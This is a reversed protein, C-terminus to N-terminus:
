QQVANVAGAIDLLAMTIASQRAKNYSLTLDDILEEAADTANRMAVMRASHESAIAEYLAQLIQVETFSYLVQSLVTFADPEFIYDPAMNTPVDALPVIPLLQRVVPEQTVTNRFETYALYVADVRGTSFDETVVHTIPAVSASHSSLQEGGKGLYPSGPRDGIGIFEARIPPGYRRMWDRGKRGVTVLEVDKGEKAWQQISTAARRIMNSNLGGALGRDATILVMSVRRIERQQLLPQEMALTSRVRSLFSLVEQAKSAYPRTSLVQAQARRMKSASVAEMARTVQAINTVSRIRRKIERDNAM